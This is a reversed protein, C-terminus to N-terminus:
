IRARNEEVEARNANLAQIIAYYSPPFMSSTIHMVYDHSGPQFPDMSGLLNKRKIKFGLGLRGNQHPRKLM